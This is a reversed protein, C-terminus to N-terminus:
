QRIRKRQQERARERNCERCYRQERGKRVRVAVNEGVMEHGHTCVSKRNWREYTGAMIQEYYLDAVGRQDDQPHHSCWARALLCARCLKRNESHSPSRHLNDGEIRHGHPCVPDRNMQYNTGNRISDQANQKRTGWELNDLYNNVSVDDLHRGVMGPDPKPGKFAELMLEHVCYDRRREGFSLKVMPYGGNNSRSTKM